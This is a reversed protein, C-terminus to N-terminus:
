DSGGVAGQLEEMESEDARLYEMPSRSMSTDESDRSTGPQPETSEVSAPAEEMRTEKEEPKKEGEEDSDSDLWTQAEKEIQRCRVNLLCV